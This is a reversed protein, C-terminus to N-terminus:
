RGHNSTPIEFMNRPSSDIRMEGKGFLHLDLRCIGAAKAMVEAKGIVSVPEPGNHLHLEGHAHLHVVKM